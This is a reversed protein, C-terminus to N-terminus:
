FLSKDAFISNIGTDAYLFYGQSEMFIGIEKNKIKIHNVSFNVTEVCIAVPRSVVFDIGRLIELDLGEVDISILQPGKGTFYQQIINQVPIVRVKKIEAIKIHTTRQVHEAEEKSFTSLGKEADSEDFIYFDLEAEEPGGTIGINLCIDESRYKRIKNILVPNPEICVGRSGGLYFLYTNNIDIPNNTGIELYTINSIGMSAFLFKLVRDEGAQSFSVFSRYSKIRGTIYSMIKGFQWLKKLNGSV